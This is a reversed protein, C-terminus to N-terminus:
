NFYKGLLQKFDDSTRIESITKWIAEALDPHRETFQHSLMLYYPKRKLAPSVKEINEFELTNNKLISDTALELSAVGDVRKIVLMELCKITNNFENVKLGRKRLDNVISFGRISALGQNSLNSFREGDWSVTSDKHKYLYYSNDYSRRSENIKGNKMPYAGFELRETNYSASFLGDISATKLQYLGRKWPFRKFSININLRKGVMQLMEVALGPKQWNIESGEGTQFPYNSSDQFGFILEVDNAFALSTTLSLIFTLAIKILIKMSKEM